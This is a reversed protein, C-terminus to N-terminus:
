GARRGPLSNTGTELRQAVRGGTGEEEDCDARHEDPFFQAEFASVAEDSQGNHWRLLAQLEGPLPAGLASALATFQADTRASLLSSRFSARHLALWGDIRELLHAPVSATSTPPGVPIGPAPVEVVAAPANVLAKEGGKKLVQVAEAVQDLPSVAQGAACVVGAWNLTLPPRRSGVPRLTVGDADLTVAVREGGLEIERTLSRTFKQM